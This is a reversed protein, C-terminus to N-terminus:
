ATTLIAYLVMVLFLGPGGLAAHLLGAGYEFITVGAELLDLYYSRSAAAM